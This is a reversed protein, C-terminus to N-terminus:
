KVVSLPKTSIKHNKPPLRQRLRQLTGKEKMKKYILVWACDRNKDVECKGKNQGGCPGNLLGKSCRTVPCIGETLDLVCEGCCSCVEQFNNDKDILAAFLSDCGPLVDLNLRDNERVCQVGSGCALVLIADSNKLAEKNKAFAIKAQAAVCTVDPTVFGTVTKGQKGLFGAMAGVEEEGGTKCTAACDGCGVIFVRAKDKLAKLIDQPSKQKTIIM